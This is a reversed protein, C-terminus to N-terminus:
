KKNELLRLTMEKMLSISIEPNDKIFAKFETSSLRITKIESDAIVTATRPVDAIIAIEGFYSGKSLKAVEEDNVLVRVVGDLLIYLSNSIEGQVLVVEEEKFNRSEAHEALHKLERFTINSFFPITHLYMMQDYMTIVGTNNFVKNYVNLVDEGYNKFKEFKTDEIISSDYKKLNMLAVTSLEISSNELLQNVIEVNNNEDVTYKTNVANVLKLIASLIAEDMFSYESQTYELNLEGNHYKLTDKLPKLEKSNKEYLINFITFLDQSINNFQDRIAFKLFNIEASKDDYLKLNSVALLQMEDLISMVEAELKDNSHLIDEVIKKHDENSIQFQKQLSNLIEHDLELHQSLIDEIMTKYTQRQYRRTPSKEVDANFLDDNELRIERFIDWHEKKSIGMNERLKELIESRDETLIGEQMLDILSNKYMKRKEEKNQKENAYTYYIEKLNTPIPKNSDWQKILKLAFREQIFYNEERFFEKYLIVASIAVVMFYFVAYPIPHENYAPAGAFIYFINFAIFAASVRMRHLLTSYTINKSSSRKWFYKEVAKFIYFSSLSFVALTIPAAIIVPISPAFFFGTSFMSVDNYAWIGSFYHELSGTQFYFYLYFGLVLGSFSYFVYNKQENLAEKWYSSEMDIDPCNKKCGSCKSCASNYEYYHSNSGCYIKEVVSVPCFFNCWSKGAYVLNTLFAFLIVFIFFVALYIDNFNLVTLRAAFAVFLISYQLYYFNKEFWKPLKKKEIWNLNQSINALFALPCVKRWKSYGFILFLVPVVPVFVTWVYSTSHEVFLLLLLLSVFVVIATSKYINIAYQNM